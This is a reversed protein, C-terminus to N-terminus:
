ETYNSEDSFVSGVYDITDVSGQYIKESLSSVTECSQLFLFTVSILLVNIKSKRRM